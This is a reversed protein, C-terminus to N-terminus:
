FRYKVSFNWTTGNGYFYGYNDKQSIYEHDLVNYMNGTIVFRQGGLDLNYSAGLDFLSYSNLEESQYTENNLSALAVDEVDVFGYLDTYYNWDLSVSLKEPIAIFNAGLGASTQPAQGVKVDKLDINKTEVLSNTDDNNIRVPTSGDYVWDGLTAYGRIMWRTNPKYTADLELGKHVQAIDTFLFRANEIDQYEGTSSLFRNEWSTYYANLNLQFNGKEFKYGAEFGVIEENDVEPDALQTNDAYSPFVNDLFPQRSYNGANAFVTHGEIFTWSAGGKINYGTKNITKSEKSNFNSNKIM